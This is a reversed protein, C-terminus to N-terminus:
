AQREITVYIPGVGLAGIMFWTFRGPRNILQFKVQEGPAVEFDETKWVWTNNVNLKHKGPTVERTASQGYMLTAFAKGDLKVILQRQRVDKESTRFITVRSEM